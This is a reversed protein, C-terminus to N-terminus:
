CQGIWRWEREHLHPLQYKIITNNSSLQAQTPLLYSNEITNARREASNVGLKGDIKDNLEQMSKVIIPVFDFTYISLNGNDNQAVIDPFIKQLPNHM